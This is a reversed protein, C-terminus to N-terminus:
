NRKFIFSAKESGNKDSQYVDVDIKYTGKKSLKFYNGYTIAGSTNMKELPKIIKKSGFIKKNKIRAIATAKLIRKNDKKSFISVMIHQTANTTNNTGGHLSKDKDILTLNKKIISAPVVGLYVRYSNTDAHWNSDTANATSFSTFVLPVSLILTYIVKKFFIMTVKRIKM